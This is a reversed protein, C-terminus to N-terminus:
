TLEKYLLTHEGGYTDKKYIQAEALINLNNFNSILPLVTEGEVFLDSHVFKKIITNKM